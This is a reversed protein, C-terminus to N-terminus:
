VSTACRRLDALHTQMQELLRELPSYERVQVALTPDWGELAVQQCFKVIARAALVCDVVATTPMSMLDIANLDRLVDEIRELSRRVDAPSGPTVPRYYNRLRYNLTSIADFADLCREEVARIVVRERARINSRTFRRDQSAILAAVIIAAVSGVAQVWGAADKPLWGAKSFYGISGVIVWFGAGGFLLMWLAWVTREVLKNWQM